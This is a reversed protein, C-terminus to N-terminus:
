YLFPLTPQLCARLGGGGVGPRGAAPGEPSRTGLGPIFLCAPTIERKRPFLAPTTQLPTHLSRLTGPPLPGFLGPSSSKGARHPVGHVTAFAWSLLCHSSSTSPLSLLGTASCSCPPSHHLILSSYYNPALRPQVKAIQLTFKIRYIISMRSNKKKGSETRFHSVTGSM